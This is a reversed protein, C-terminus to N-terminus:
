VHDPGFFIRGCLQSFSVCMQLFIQVNSFLDTGRCFYGSKGLLDTCSLNTGRGFSGCRELFRHSFSVFRDLFNRLELFPIKCFQGLDVEDDIGGIAELSLSAM